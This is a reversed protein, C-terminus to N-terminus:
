PKWQVLHLPEGNVGLANLSGQAKPYGPIEELPTFYAAGETDSRNGVGGTLTGVAAGTSREWFPGGSDGAQISIETRITCLVPDGNERLQGWRECKPPWEAPRCMIHRSYQGARCVVMGEKVTAPANIRTFESDSRRILRPVISPDEVRIAEADTAFNSPHKNFSYRRVYGLVRQWSSKTEDENRQWQKVEAGPAFCHGATTIFHRYLPTGSPNSGGVDWAGWGVSCEEETREPEGPFTTGLLEGAKVPGTETAVIRKFSPREAAAEYFVSIPASSGFRSRVYAEVESVASAGVDVTNHQVDVKAGGMASPASTAEIVELQLAELYALSYTPKVPFPKVRSPATLESSSKLAAVREEQADTFGVYIIGGARHDVYYGAYSSVAGHANVWKPIVTSAEDVYHERYEM